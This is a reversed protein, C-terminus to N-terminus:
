TGQLAKQLAKSQRLQTGAHAEERGRARKALNTRREEQSIGIPPVIALVLRVRFFLELFVVVFVLFILPVHARM